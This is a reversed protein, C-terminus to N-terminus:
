ATLQIYSQNIMYNMNTDIRQYEVVKGQYEIFVLDFMQIYREAMKQFDVMKEIAEFDETKYAQVFKQRMGKESLDCKSCDEVYSKFMFFNERIYQAIVAELDEKNIAMKIIMQSPVMKFNDIWFVKQAGVKEIVDTEVFIKEILMKM